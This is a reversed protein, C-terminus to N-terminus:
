KNRPRVIYPRNHIMMSKHGEKLADIEDKLEERTPKDPPKLGLAERVPPLRRLVMAYLVLWGSRYKHYTMNKLLIM